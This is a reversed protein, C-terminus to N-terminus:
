GSIVSLAIATVASISAAFTAIAAAIAPNRVLAQACVNVTLPIGREVMLDTIRWFGIRSGYEFLSEAVFDRTGAPLKM